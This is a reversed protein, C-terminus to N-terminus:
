WPNFFALVWGVLSLNTHKILRPNFNVRVDGKHQIELLGPEHQGPAGCREGNSFRGRTLSPPDHRQM